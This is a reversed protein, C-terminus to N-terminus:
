DGAGLDTTANELILWAEEEEYRGLADLLTAARYGLENFAATEPERRSSGHLAGHLQKRLYSTEKLLGELDDHLGNVRRDMGPSPAQGGSVAVLSDYPSELVGEQRRIGQEVASLAQELRAAWAQPRNTPDVVLIRELNAVAASLTEKKTRM